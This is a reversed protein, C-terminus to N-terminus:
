EISVPAHRTPPPTFTPDTEVILELGLLAALEEGSHRDVFPSFSEEDRGLELCGRALNALTYKIQDAPVNQEISRTFRADHWLRGGLSIDYAEVQVGYV